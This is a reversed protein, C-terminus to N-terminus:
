YVASELKYTLAELYRGKFRWDYFSYSGDLSSFKRLQAKSISGALCYHAEDITLNPCFPISLRLIQLEARPYILGKSDSIEKIRALLKRRVEKGGRFVFKFNLLVLCGMADVAKFSSGISRYFDEWGDLTFAYGAEHLCELFHLTSVDITTRGGTRHISDLLERRFMKSMETLRRSNASWGSIQRMVFSVLECVKLALNASPAFSYLAFATRSISNVVELSDDRFATCDSSDATELLKEMELRLRSVTFSTLTHPEVSHVAVAGRFNLLFERERFSSEGCGINEACSHVAHPSKSNLYSEIGQILSQKAVSISSKFPAVELTEKADNLTMNVGSLELEIVDRVLITLEESRAFVFFDDVYRFLEYDKGKRWGKEGLIRVVDVDVKQLIIEAFIRSVEPGVPIGNTENLRLRQFTEDFRSGASSSELRRRKSSEYGDLVWGISHTYISSFCNTVDLRRLFSYKRECALYLESSFFRNINNFPAYSFTSTLHQYQSDFQEVDGNKQGISDVEADPNLSLQAVRFPHRLSVASKNTAHLILSKNESILKAIQLMSSPHLISLRRSGSGPKRVEYVYPEFRDGNLDSNRRSLDYVSTGRLQKGSVSNNSSSLRTPLFISEVLTKHKDYFLTRASIKNDEIWKFGLDRFFLYLGRNSIGVPVEYPLVDGILPTLHDHKLIARKM